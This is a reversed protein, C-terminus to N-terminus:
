RVVIQHVKLKILCIVIKRNRGILQIIHQDESKQKGVETSKNLNRAQLQTIEIAKAIKIAKDQNLSEEQLLKEKIAQNSPGVIFMDMVLSERLTDLECSISKNKLDTLFDDISESSKQVRTLFNHREITLNKKPACHAKYKAVLEDYKCSDMDIGFSNFISLAESGIHHLFLAVKRQEDSNELCSARMFIKFHQYWMEWNHAINGELSLVPINNNISVKSARSIISTSISEPSTNPM